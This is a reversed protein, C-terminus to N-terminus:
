CSVPCKLTRCPSSPKLWLHCGLHSVSHMACLSYLKRDESTNIQKLKKLLEILILMLISILTVTIILDNLAHAM